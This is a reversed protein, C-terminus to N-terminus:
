AWRVQPALSPGGSIHVYTNNAEVLSDSELPNLGLAEGLTVGDAEM